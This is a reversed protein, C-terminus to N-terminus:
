AADAQDMEDAVDPAEVGVEEDALVHKGAAPDRAQVVDDDLHLVGPELHEVDLVEPAVVREREVHPCLAEVAVSLTDAREVRLAEVLAEPADPAYVEVAAGLHEAARGAARMQELDHERLAVHRERAIRHSPVEEVLALGCVVFFSASVACSLCPAPVMPRAFSVDLRKRSRAGAARRRRSTRFKVSTRATSGCAPQTSASPM